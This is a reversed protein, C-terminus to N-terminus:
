RSISHDDCRSISMATSKSFCTEHWNPSLDFVLGFYVKDPKLQVSVFCFILRLQHSIGFNTCRLSFARGMGWPERNFDLRATAIKVVVIQHQLDGWGPHLRDQRIRGLCCLHISM